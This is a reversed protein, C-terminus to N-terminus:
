TVEFYGWCPQLSQTEPLPVVSKGGGDQDFFNLCLCLLLIYSKWACTSLLLTSAVRKAADFYGYDPQM